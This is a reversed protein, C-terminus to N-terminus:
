VFNGYCDVFSVMLLYLGFSSDKSDIVSKLYDSMSEPAVGMPLM